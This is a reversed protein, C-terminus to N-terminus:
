KYLPTNHYIYKLLSWLYDIKRPTYKMGTSGSQGILQIPFYFERFKGGRSKWTLVSRYLVHEFFINKSDNIESKMPLFYNRIFDKPCGFFYSLCSMGQPGMKIRQAYISAFDKMSNILASINNVCLRGTVKIIYDADNMFISNNLAYEIIECEGYGKGLSKNFNNGAFTLIEIRSDKIEPQFFSSLDTNSNDIFLIKLSTKSIYFRIAEIYQQQRVLPDQLSTMSMGDPKICGTLFLLTNNLEM